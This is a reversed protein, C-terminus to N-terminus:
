IDKLKRVSKLMFWSWMNGVEWKGSGIELYGKDMWTYHIILLPVLRNITTWLLFISFSCPALHDVHCAHPRTVGVPRGHQDRSHEEVGRATCTEPVLWVDRIWRGNKNPSLTENERKNIWLIVLILLWTELCFFIFFYFLQSCEISSRTTLCSLLMISSCGKFCNM